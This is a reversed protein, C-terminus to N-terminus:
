SPEQAQTGGRDVAAAIATRATDAWTSAVGAPIVLIVQHAAVPETVALEITDGAAWADPSWDGVRVRSISTTHENM